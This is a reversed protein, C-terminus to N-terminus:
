RATGDTKMESRIKKTGTVIMYVAMMVIFIFAAGGGCLMFILRGSETMNGSDFTGLMTSELTFMSVTACALSIAKAASFAPSEYRRYRIVNIIAKTFTFFTYTAIAITTIEGHSVGDEIFIKYFMMLSIMVNMILFIIGCARYIILEDRKKEGPVNNKLYSLLFYRMAALMIYYMALSYFWFSAHYIGIGLQFAAYGANLIFSTLLSINVRLRADDFWRKIYKNEHRALKFFRIIEPMRICLVTLAYASLAYSAYLAIDNKWFVASYIFFAACTPILLILVAMKPYILARFIKKGNM